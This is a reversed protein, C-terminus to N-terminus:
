KLVRKTPTPVISLPVLMLPLVTTSHLMVTMCSGIVSAMSVNNFIASHTSLLTVPKQPLFVNEMMLANGFTVTMEMMAATLIKPLKADEQYPNM